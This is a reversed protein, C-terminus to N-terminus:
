QKKLKVSCHISSFCFDEKENWKNGEIGWQRGTRVAHMASVRNKLYKDNIKSAESQEM